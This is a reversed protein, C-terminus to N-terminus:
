KLRAMWGALPNIQTTGSGRMYLFNNQSQTTNNTTSGIGGFGGFGNFSAVSGLKALVGDLSDSLDGLGGIMPNILNNNWAAVIQPSYGNVSALMAAGTDDAAQTMQQEIVVGSDTAAQEATDFASNFANEIATKVRDFSADDSSLVDLVDTLAQGLDNVTQSWQDETAQDTETSPTVRLLIGLGGAGQDLQFFESENAAKAALGDLYETLQEQTLSTGDDLVTKYHIAFEDGNESEFTDWDTKIGALQDAFDVDSTYQSADFLQYFAKIKEPLNENDMELLAALLVDKNQTLVEAENKFANSVVGGGGGGGGGANQLAEIQADIADVMADKWEEIAKIQDDLNWDQLQEQWDKNVDALKKEADAEDERADIGSRSQARRVDALAESKDALYEDRRRKRDEAEQVEKLADIQAQATEEIAKKRDELIKIQPDEGGGGGGGGSAKPATATAGGFSGLSLGSAAASVNRYAFAVTGLKNALAQAQGSAYGMGILANYISNTAGEVSTAASAASSVIEWMSGGLERSGSAALVDAAWKDKDAAAAYESAIAAAEMYFKEDIMAKILDQKSDILDDTADKNVSLGGATVDLLDLYESSLGLLSNLMETTMIGTENYESVVSNLADMSSTFENVQDQTDKFAAAALEATNLTEDLTLDGLSEQLKDSADVVNVFEPYLLAMERRMAEVYEASVREQIAAQELIEIYNDYEAQTNILGKTHEEYADQIAKNNAANTNAEDAKEINERYAKLMANIIGVANAGDAGLDNLKVRWQELLEIVGEAGGKTFADLVQMRAGFTQTSTDGTKQLARYLVGYEGLTFKEFSQLEKEGVNVASKYFEDQNKANEYRAQILKAINEDVKGNVLDWGVEQDGLLKVIDEHISKASALASESGAAYESTSALEKYKQILEGLSDTAKRAAAGEELTKRRADEMASGIATIGAVLLSIATIALGIWGFALQLGSVAKGAANVGTTLAKVSAGIGTFFEQIKQAKIMILIGLVLSLANKLGGTNGILKALGIGLEAVWKLAELFGADGLAVALQKWSTTLQNSIATLTAMYKENETVSYGEADTMGRVAEEATGLNNLLAIFYNKRYTGAISYADQVEQGKAITADVAQKYEESDALFGSMAEQDTAMFDAFALDGGKIKQALQSWIDLVPLLNGEADKAQIGMQELVDISKARTTYTILSNIATGLNEGTRGTAEGLATIVGILEDLTMGYAKATGGSRQMAAVIAESTIAYDDATKNIKDILVVYDEAGLNWQAMVAILGQTAQTVDLEATNLALMTGRTLTLVDNWSKGTQAFLVASEQVEEFTRGYEYAIDYLQSSIEPSSVDDNLVRQLEVVTQETEKVTSILAKFANIAGQILYFSALWKAKDSIKTFFDNMQTGSTRVSGELQRTKAILEDLSAKFQDSSMEGAKFRKILNLTEANLSKMSAITDRNISKQRSNELRKIAAGQKDTLSTGEKILANRQQEAAYNIKATNAAEDFVIGLSKLEAELTRVREADEQTAVGANELSTIYESVRGKVAGFTEGLQRVNADGWKANQAQSQTAGFQSRIDQLKSILKEYESTSLQQSQGGVKNKFDLALINAQKLETNLEVIRSRAKVFGDSDNEDLDFGKEVYSKLVNLDGIIKEVETRVESFQDGTFAKGALKEQLATYRDILRNVADTTVAIKRDTGSEGGGNGGAGSGMTGDPSFGANFNDDWAKQAKIAAEQVSAPISDLQAKMDTLNFSLSTLHETKTSAM